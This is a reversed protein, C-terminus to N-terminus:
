LTEEIKSKLEALTVAAIEFDFDEIQRILEEAGPVANLQDLLHISDPSNNELLPELKELLILTEKANLPQLEKYDESKDFLPKLEELASTLQTQLIDMKKEWVSDLRDRLLDEIEGATNRLDTKGIIGANGKLSHALRHATRIDGSVTANLIESHVNKNKQLFNAKLRQQLEKNDEFENVSDDAAPKKDVPKLYKLLLHWLEMSTFPKGLCDPM